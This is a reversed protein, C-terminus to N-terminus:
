RHLRPRVDLGAAKLEAALALVLHPLRAAVPPSLELGTALSAPEVGFLVTRRPAEGTLILAALVEPLGAQHPSLRTRFLAPIEDDVLRLLHGPRQGSRVADAVVLLALGALDDLLEMASTGGDILSVEPPLEYERGLRQIARVGVGEDSLLLNGVGLVAIRPGAVLPMRAHGSGTQAAGGAGADFANMDLGGSRVPLGPPLPRGPDAV